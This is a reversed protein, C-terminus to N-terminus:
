PLEEIVVTGNTVFSSPTSDLSLIFAASPPIIIPRGAIPPVWLYGNITNWVTDVLDVGTGSTTAQTPDNAHATFTAAVDSSVWPVPTPTSGGSGATVTSPLRRLRIRMNAVTTGTVQGLEVSHVGLVKVGAYAALLDQAAGITVGQFGITYLRGSIAM